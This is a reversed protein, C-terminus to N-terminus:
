RRLLDVRFLTIDFDSYPFGASLDHTVFDGVPDVPYDAPLPPVAGINKDITITAASNSALSPGQGLADITTGLYTGSINTTTLAHATFRNSPIFQAMPHQANDIDILIRLTKGEDAITYNDNLTAVPIFNAVGGGTAGIQRHYWRLFHGDYVLMDTFTDSDTAEIPLAEANLLVAYRGQGSTNIDGPGDVTLSFSLLRQSTTGGAGGSGSSPSADGMSACGSTVLVIASFLSVYPILKLM